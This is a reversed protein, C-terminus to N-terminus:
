LNVSKVIDSFQTLFKSESYLENYRDIAITACEDYFSQDSNLKRLIDKASGIDGVEVTTHLHCTRQTDLGSYGICPIGLRACNLAFTGAAYTRMMHIGYKRKSLEIMWDVWNKYPIHTIDSITDEDRLKRGMSVIYKDCELEQSVMYSDMGGYWSVFNGGIMIGDRHASCADITEAIISLSDEIILTPLIHVNDFGIGEFYMKDICNHVLIGDVSHLLHLYNFQTELEWDQYYWHPGEQMTFIRSCTERIPGINFSPNHKPVIIIAIDYEGKIYDTEHIRSVNFHTANLAIQWAIDTRSNNWTRPLKGIYDGESFFAVSIIQSQIEPKAM